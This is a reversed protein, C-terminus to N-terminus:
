LSAANSLCMDLHLIGGDDYTDGQPAFGFCRYFNQLGAQASLMIAHQPFLRQCHRIAQTMLPKALGSGRLRAPIVVRGIAAAHRYKVGPPILRAYAVLKGDGDRGSLHWCHQDLGDVDGYISQQEVVFVQDRLQLVEYLAQAGFADFGHCQWKVQSAM